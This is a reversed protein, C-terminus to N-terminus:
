HFDGIATGLQRVVDTAIDNTMTFKTERADSKVYVVVGRGKRAVTITTKGDRTKIEHGGDKKLDRANQIVMALARVSSANDFDVTHGEEGVTLQWGPAKPKVVFGPTHDWTTGAAFEANIWRGILEANSIGHADALINIQAIRSAHLNVTSRPRSATM